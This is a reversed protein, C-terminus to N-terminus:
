EEQTSNEDQNEEPNEEPLCEDEAFDPIMGANTEDSEMDRVENCNEEDDFFSSDTLSEYFVPVSLYILALAKFMNIFYLFDFIFSFIQMFSSGEEKSLSLAVGFYFVAPVLNKGSSVLAFGVIKFFKGKALKRSKSFVSLIKQEPNDYRYQFLFIFSYLCVFVLIVLVASVIYIEAYEGFIGQFYVFFDPEFHLLVKFIFKVAVFILAVNVSAILAVPAYNKFKRFTYFLFGLSVFQRRVIRLLLISFSGYLMFLLFVDAFLLAYVAAKSFINELNKSAFVFAPGLFIMSVVSQIVTLFFLSFIIKSSNREAIGSLFKLRCTFQSQKENNKNEKM